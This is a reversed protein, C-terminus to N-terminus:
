CTGRGGGGFLARQLSVCCVAVPTAEVDQEECMEEENMEVTHLFMQSLLHTRRNTTPAQVVPCLHQSVFVFSLSDKLQKFHIFVILPRTNNSPHRERTPMIM